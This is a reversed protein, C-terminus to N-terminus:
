STKVLDPSLSCDRDTAAAREDEPKISDQSVTGIRVSALIKLRYFLKSVIERTFPHRNQHYQLLYPM